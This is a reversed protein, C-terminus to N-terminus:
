IDQKSWPLMSSSTILELAQVDLLRAAGAKARTSVSVSHFYKSSFGSMGTAEASGGAGVLM